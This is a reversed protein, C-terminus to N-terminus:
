KSEAAKEEPKTEEPQIEEFRGPMARTLAFWGFNNKAPDDGFVGKDVLDKLEGAKLWSQYTNNKSPYTKGTKTDKIQVKGNRMPKRKRSASEQLEGIQDTHETVTTALAEVVKQIDALTMPKAPDPTPEEPQAEEVHAEVPQSDVPQTDATTAADTEVEETEPPSTGEEPTQSAEQEPTPGHTKPKKKTM